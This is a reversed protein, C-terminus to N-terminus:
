PELQTMCNPNLIVFSFKCFLVEFIQIKECSSLPINIHKVYKGHSFELLQNHMTSIFVRSSNDSAIPHDEILSLQEPIIVACSTIALYLFPIIRRNLVVHAKRKENDVTILYSNINTEKTDKMVIMGEEPDDSKWWLINSAAEVEKDGPLDVPVRLIIDVPGKANVSYEAKYIFIENKVIWILTPGNEVSYSRDCLRIHGGLIKPIMFNYRMLWKNSSDLSFLYCHENFQVIFYPLFIGCQVDLIVKCAICSIETRGNRIHLSQLTQKKQRNVVFCKSKPEYIFDSLHVVVCEKIIEVNLVLVSTNYVLIERWMM